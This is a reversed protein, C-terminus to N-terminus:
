NIERLAKRGLMNIMTTCGHCFMFENSFIVLSLYMNKYMWTAGVDLDDDKSFRTQLQKDVYELHMM